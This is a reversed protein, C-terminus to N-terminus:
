TTVQKKWMLKKFEKPYPTEFKMLEGTVPHHFHLKFAHLALRKLPNDKNGYKTDGLVAHKLDQAHVRIQNKRGTELNFEVLSYGNARQITNFHTIAKEGGNDSMSSYTIFVHNDKLWSVVMGNDQEMEGSLVAIYRRDTVIENWYDQFTIKTKEDKAFVMLGSTDKDLRHVIYVRRQKNTRKVYENLISHATREKQKDTGISLLGERKEVVLLYADEYVIHLLDNHFEKTNNKNIQVRMDPKLMFNYQTIITDNVMVQRKSLLSKAATRSIGRQAKTMLFDMLEGTEKVPYVTFPIKTRTKRKEKM